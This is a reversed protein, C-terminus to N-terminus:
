FISYVIHCCVKVSGLPQCIPRHYDRLRNETYTLKVDCGILSRKLFTTKLSKLLSFKTNANMLICFSYDM